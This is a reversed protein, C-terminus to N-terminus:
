LRQEQHACNSSGGPTGLLRCRYAFFSICKSGVTLVAMVAVPITSLVIGQSTMRRIASYRAAFVAQIPAALGVQTFVFNRFHSKFRSLSVLPEQVPPSAEPLMGCDRSFTNWRWSTVYANILDHVTIITPASDTTASNLTSRTITPPSDTTASNRKGETTTSTRKTVARQRPPDGM